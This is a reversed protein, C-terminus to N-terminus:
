KCRKFLFYEDKLFPISLPMLKTALIKRKIKIKPFQKQQEIEIKIEKM